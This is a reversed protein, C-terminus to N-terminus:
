PMVARRELLYSSLRLFVSRPTSICVRSSRRDTTFVFCDAIKSCLIQM